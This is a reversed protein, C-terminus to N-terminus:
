ISLGKLLMKKEIITLVSAELSDPSHHVLTRNSLVRIDDKLKLKVYTLSDPDIKGEVIQLELFRENNKTGLLTVRDIIIRGTFGEPMHHKIGLIRSESHRGIVLKDYHGGSLDSILFDQTPIITTTHM